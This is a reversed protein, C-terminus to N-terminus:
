LTGESDTEEVMRYEESLIPAALSYLEEKTSVRRHGAIEKAEVIGFTKPNNSKLIDPYKIAM